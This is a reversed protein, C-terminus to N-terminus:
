PEPNGEEGEPKAPCAPTLYLFTFPKLNSSFFQNEIANPKLNSAFGEATPPRLNSTLPLFKQHQPKQRL